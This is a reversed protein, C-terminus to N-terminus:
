GMRVQSVPYISLLCISLHYIFSPELLLISLLCICSLLHWCAKCQNQGPLPKKIGPGTAPLERVTEKDDEDEALWRKCPFVYRTKSGMSQM